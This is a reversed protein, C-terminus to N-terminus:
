LQKYLTISAIRQIEQLVDPPIINEIIWEFSDVDFWIIRELSVLMVGAVGELPLQARLNAVLDQGLQINRVMMARAMREIELELELYILNSM